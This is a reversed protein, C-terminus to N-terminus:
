KKSGTSTAPQTKNPCPPDFPGVGCFQLDLVNGSGFDDIYNVILRNINKRVGSYVNITETHKVEDTRVTMGMKSQLDSALNTPQNVFLFIAVVVFMGVLFVLPFVLNYLTFKHM